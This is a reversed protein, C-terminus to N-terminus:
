FTDYDNDSKNEYANPAISPIYMLPPLSPPTTLSTFMNNSAQSNNPGLSNERELQTFGPYGDNAVGYRSTAQSLSRYADTSTTASLELSNQQQFGYFMGMNIANQNSALFICVIGIKEINKIKEKLDLLTYKNSKNDQGDTQLAFVGIIKEYKHKNNQIMMEINLLEEYATDILRTSGNPKLVKKLEETSYNVNKLNAWDQHKKVVGSFTILSFLTEYESEENKKDDLFEKVSYYQTNGYTEMSSSTDVVLKMLFLKNKKNFRELNKLENFVFTMNNKMNEQAM